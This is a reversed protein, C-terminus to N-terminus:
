EDNMLLPLSEDILAEIDACHIENTKRGTEDSEAHKQRVRRRGLVTHCSVVVFSVFFLDTM